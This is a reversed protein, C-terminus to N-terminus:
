TATSSEKKAAGEELEILDTMTKAATNGPDIRELEEKFHAREEPTQPENHEVWDNMAAVKQKEPRVYDRVWELVGDDDPATRVADLFEDETVGLTNFLKLNFGCGYYIYEGLTGALQARAKDIARPLIKMGDLEARPSRPYEKTLDM